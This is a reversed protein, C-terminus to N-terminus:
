TTMTTDNVIHLILKGKNPGSSITGGLVAVPSAANKGNPITANSAIAADLNLYGAGVTFIDDVVTFTQHTAPDTIHVATQPFKSATKMLRAKIQDNSLHNNSSGSALLAAVAGSTAAAAMSSGSLVFYQSVMGNSPRSVYSSLPVVDGAFTQELTGAPLLRISFIRNGPAVIDPKVVHDGFTPGKSSYTTMQDDARSPTSRTNMAGVTIVLPDNAPAAITFYGHTPAFRGGNGAAVVVTIGALWAKEVEQCLPDLKYSEYVGRGLSLNIIQINYQRRNQIAWDIAAIVQADTSKGTRDLVKLNILDVAPAVGHVDHTFA